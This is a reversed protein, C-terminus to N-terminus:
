RGKERVNEGGFDLEKLPIQPWVEGILRSTLNPGIFAVLLGLLQALLVVRGEFFDTPDLDAALAELGELDGDATVQVTRLWPTEASALVLARALLARVGGKGLLISLHPRLKNTVPFMALAAAEVASTGTIETSLLRKAASRMQPTARNM